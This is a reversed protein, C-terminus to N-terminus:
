RLSVRKPLPLLNALPLPSIEGGKGSNASAACNRRRLAAHDPPPALQAPRSPHVFFFLTNSTLEYHFQSVPKKSSLASKAPTPGILLAPTPRIPWAMSFPLVCLFVWFIDIDHLFYHVGATHYYCHRVLNDSAVVIQFYYYHCQTSITHWWSFNHSAM